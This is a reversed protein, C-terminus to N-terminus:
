VFNAREVVAAALSRLRLLSALRLQQCRSDLFPPTPPTHQQQPLPPPPPSSTTRAPMLQQQQEAASLAPPPILLLCRQPASSPARTSTSDPWPQRAAPTALAPRGRPSRARIRDPCSAARWRALSRPPLGARQAPGVFRLQALRPALSLATPASAPRVPKPQHALRSAAARSPSFEEVVAAALSRLRLLSALRLQQRRSDLFPPTPPTHQQRPLPPPTPSSTTRAPTLQQQQEAASLAPPPILLLCRQPASSPARTSTSDPRPQRAAPTALAPRGRPSRARVRDPCSAARWRALSRPPLGARQAPGVFRLQALRPALSLATPASAPRAPKPQHALRSAAARSPSFEKLVLIAGDPEKVLEDAAVFPLSAAARSHARTTEPGRVGAAGRVGAPMSSSPLLDM